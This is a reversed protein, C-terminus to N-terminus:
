QICSSSVTHGFKNKDGAAHYRAKALADRRGREAPKELHAAQPDRRLLEVGVDVDIGAGHAGILVTLDIDRLVAGFGVEVEAM